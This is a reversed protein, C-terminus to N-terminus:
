RTKAGALSNIKKVSMWKCTKKGHNGVIAVVYDQAHLKSLAYPKVNGLEQSPVFVKGTGDYVMVKQNGFDTYNALRQASTVYDGDRHEMQTEYMHSFLPVMVVGLLVVTLIAMAVVLKSMGRSSIIRDM